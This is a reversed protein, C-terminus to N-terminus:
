NCNNNWKPDFITGYVKYCRPISSRSMNHVYHRFILKDVGFPNKAWGYINIIQFGAPVTVTVSEGLSIVKTRIDKFDSNNYPQVLFFADYGSQNFFKIKIEQCDASQALFLFGLLLFSRAIKGVITQM